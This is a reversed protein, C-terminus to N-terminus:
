PKLVQICQLKDFNNYKGQRIIKAVRNCEKLTPVTAVNSVVDHGYYTHTFSVLIWVYVNM